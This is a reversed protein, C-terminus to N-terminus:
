RRRQRRRRRRQVRASKNGSTCSKFSFSSTKAAAFPRRRADRCRRRHRRHRCIAFLRSDFTARREYALQRRLRARSSCAFAFAAMLRACVIRRANANCSLRLARFVDRSNRSAFRRQSCSAKQRCDFAATARIFVSNRGCAMPPTLLCFSVMLLRWRRTRRGGVHRRNARIREKGRWADIHHFRSRRSQECVRRTRPCVRVRARARTTASVRRQQM